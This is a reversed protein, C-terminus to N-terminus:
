FRGSRDKFAQSGRRFDDLTDGGFMRQCEQAVVIAVMQEAVVGAAPVACTDSREYFAKEAEKTNIDVTQLGKLVTSIPKMAARVRLPGGISMGGETGGARTTHRVFEGEYFIEDHAESGRRRASEFGDGLEVGKIAQISMLAHALRADLRRDWHVHSGVGAPLGYVLVEVVGGLTDRDAKASEIEAVMAAAAEPYFCRVPSEDIVALDEFQPLPTEPATAKGISIVHSLVNVGVEALLQKALYGVVTRAATERASARELIDRADRTDYKLMGALDAHGPRPATLKKSEQSDEVPDASMTEQFRPWESNRVIVAVPSGLTKGHRVGALIELEDQEVRMRAGRGFGLRRRALEAAIGESSVVLGAPLGEVTAVLGPGHSEGATLFRFM